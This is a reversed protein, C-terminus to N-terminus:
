AAGCRRAANEMLLFFAQGEPATGPSDFRPAACVGQVLGLSDVKAKAAARMRAARALYAAPIEHMAALRYIGYALMQASNTEVFSGSDDLVDHFLGDGRQYELCAEIVERAYGFIRRRADGLREPLAAAVRLMGAAAWGNGVGWFARRVFTKTGDDWIHSFLGTSGDRLARRLGEVQSVAEDYRGIAALFPPAMYLSDVWFQKETIRHYITGDASRHEPRLLWDAMREAAAEYRRDGTARAALLAAEGNAAADVVSADDGIVGMRGDDARRVLADHACLVALRTEGMELFAQACVGQEWSYRQMCLLAERVKAVLDDDM